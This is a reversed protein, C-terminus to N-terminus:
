FTGIRNNHLFTSRYELPSVGVHTQFLRYFTPLSQFGSQFGIDAVALETETLLRKAERLRHETLHSRWSRGTSQHFLRAATAPRVGLVSAVESLSVTEAYHDAIWELAPSLRNLEGTMQKWDHMSTAGSYHRALEVCLEFLLCKAMTEYGNNRHTWEEFLKEMLSRIRVAIDAEGPLRNHFLAPRYSFPLLLHPNEKRLLDPDFNVFLYVSPRHPNSEAIHPEVPNVIFVDGQRVPYQKEGFYFTGEGQICCGIELSSHTHLPQRYPMPSWRFVNLPLSTRYKINLKM